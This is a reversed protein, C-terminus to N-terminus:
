SQRRSAHAVTPLIYLFLRGNLGGQWLLDGATLFTYLKLSDVDEGLPIDDIRFGPFLFDYLDLYVRAPVSESVNTVTQVTRQPLQYTIDAYRRWVSV